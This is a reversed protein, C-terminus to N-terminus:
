DNLAEAEKCIKDLRHNLGSKSIPPNHLAALVAMSVSENNIRIKATEKLEDPLSDFKHCDILKQIATIQKQAANVSRYINQTVCNTARNENNRIEKEIGFMSYDFSSRVAGIFYLLDAITASSKFYLGSSNARNIIKPVFGSFSLFRYLKSARTINKSSIGFELQYSKQPDNLKGCSLFVGRLFAQECAPCKFPLAESVSLDTDNDIDQLFSCVSRSSFSIKKYTRGPKQISTVDVECSYVSRLLESIYTASDENLFTAEIKNKTGQDCNLLYGAVLAKKCCNKKLPLNILETRVQELFSMYEGKM